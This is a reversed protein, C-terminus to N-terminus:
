TVDYSNDHSDANPIHVTVNNNIADRAYDLYKKVSDLDNQYIGDEGIRLIADSLGGSYSELSNIGDTIKSLCTNLENKANAARAAGDSALVFFTTNDQRIANLITTQEYDPLTFNYMLFVEMAFKVAHLVADTLYLETRYIAVPDLDSDGQMNGSIEFRFEPNTECVALREISYNIKPVFNDRLIRQVESILPPDVLAAKQITLLSQAVQAVPVELASATTPIVPRNLIKSFSRDNFSAEMDKIMQNMEPDAYAILIETIAAGLNADLNEPDLELADKYLNNAPIFQLADFDSATEFSGNVWFSFQGEMLDYAEDSKVKSAEPDYSPEEDDPEASDCGIFLIGFSILIAIVLLLRNSKM